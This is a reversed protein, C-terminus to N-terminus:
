RGSRRHQECTVRSTEAAERAGEGGTSGVCWGRIFYWRGSNDRPRVPALAGAPLPANGFFLCPAGSHRNWEEKGGFNDGRGKSTGGGGMRHTYMQAYWRQTKRVMVTPIVIPDAPLSVEVCLPQTVHQLHM